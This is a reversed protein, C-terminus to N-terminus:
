KRAMIVVSEVLQDLTKLGEEIEEAPTKKNVQLSIFLYEKYLSMGYLVRLDQGEIWEVRYARRSRDLTRVTVNAPEIGQPSYFGRLREMYGAILNRPLDIDNKAFNGKVFKILSGEIITGILIEGAHIKHRFGLDMNLILKEVKKEPLLRVNLDDSQTGNRNRFSRFFRKKPKKTVIIYGFDREYRWAEADIEWDVGPLIFAYGKNDHVFQNGVIRETVCNSALALLFCLMAIKFLATARSRVKSSLDELFDHDFSTM